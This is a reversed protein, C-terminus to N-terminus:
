LALLLGAHMCYLLLLLISCESVRHVIDNDSGYSQMKSWVPLLLLLLLLMSTAHRHALGFQTLYPGGSIITFRPPPGGPRRVAIASHGRGEGGRM